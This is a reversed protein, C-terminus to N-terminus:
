PAGGDRRRGAGRPYKLMRAIPQVVRRAPDDLADSDYCSDAWVLSSAALLLPTPLLPRAM